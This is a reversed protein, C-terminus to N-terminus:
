FDIKKNNVLTTTGCCMWKVTLTGCIPPPIHEKRPRQGWLHGWNKPPMERLFVYCATGSNRIKAFLKHHQTYKAINPYVTCVYYWHSSLIQSELLDEKQPRARAGGIHPVRKVTIMHLLM